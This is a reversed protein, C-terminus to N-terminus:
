YTHFISDNLIYSDSIPKSLPTENITYMLSDYYTFATTYGTSLLFERNISYVQSPIDRKFFKLLIMKYMQILLLKTPHNITHALRRNLNKKKVFHALEPLDSKQIVALYRTIEHDVHHKLHETLVSLPLTDNIHSILEDKLIPNRTIIDKTYLQLDCYNPLSITIEFQDHIKFINLERERCTNMYGYNKLYESVLITSNRILNKNDEHQMITTSFLEKFGPSHACM